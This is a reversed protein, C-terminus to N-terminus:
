CALMVVLDIVMLVATGDVMESAMSDVMSDVREDAMKWATM